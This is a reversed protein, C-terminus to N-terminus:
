FLLDQSIEDFFFYFSLVFVVMFYDMEQSCCLELMKELWMKVLGFENNGVLFEELCKLYVCFVDVQKVIVQEEESWVNEDIFLVFIDCLEDLVM